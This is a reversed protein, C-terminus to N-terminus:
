DHRFARGAQDRLPKTLYSLMSRAGTQIYTEAPMGPVLKPIHANALAKQDIAVRVKYFSMGTHEDITKEASVWSVKGQIEPTTQANFASFHIRAVQGVYVRDIDSISVPTEVVMADGVPVIEAIPEYPQVTGGITSLTLKDVIGDAPARIVSRNNAEDASVDRVQLENLRASVDGLQRGAERRATQTVQILQERTETIRARAQAINAQLSGASGRLDVATRELQNLRTITVLKKEWLARLGELEPGILAEQQHIALLQREFGNIQEDLQSIREGLQAATASRERQQLAFQRQEDAMADRATTDATRTLAAPFNISGRGSVEAELRAQEALLQLVGQRSMSASVGSVRADLTVMPQGARVRDGNRVLIEAVVGGTPHAVKKVNSDVKIEGSGVVAGSIDVFAATGFLGFVLFAVAFMAKRLRDKLRATAQALAGEEPPLSIPSHFM